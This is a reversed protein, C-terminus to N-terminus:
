IGLEGVKSKHFNGMPGLALEFCTMQLHLITVELKNKGVKLGELMIKETAQRDLGALREVVILFL